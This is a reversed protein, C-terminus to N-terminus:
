TGYVVFGKEKFLATAGAVKRVYAEDAGNVALTGKKWTTFDGQMDVVIVGTKEGAAVASFPAMCLLMTLVVVANIFIVMNRM